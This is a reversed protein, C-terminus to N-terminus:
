YFSKIIHKAKNYFLHHPAFYINEFDKNKFHSVVGVFHYSPKDDIITTLVMPGGSAGHFGKCNSFGFTKSYPQLECKPDFTIKEGYKAVDNSFGGLSGFNNQYKKQLTTFSEKKILLPEVDKPSIAKHLFLIAYDSKTKIDKKSFHSDYRVKAVRYLMENSKSKIIFNLQGATYNYDTLCHSATIIVQSEINEKLNVLTASCKKTHIKYRKNKLIELKTPIILRGISHTWKPSKKTVLIRTDNVLKKQHEFHKNLTKIKTHISTIKSDFQLAKKYLTFAEEYNHIKKYEDAKKEYTLAIKNKVIYSHKQLTYAKEYWTLAEKYDRIKFYNDALKTYTQSIRLKLELNNPEKKYLPEYYLLAKKYDQNVFAKDGLDLTDSCYLTTSYLFLFIVCLIKNKM